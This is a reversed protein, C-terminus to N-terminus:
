ATEKAEVRKHDLAYLQLFEDVVSVDGSYFRNGLEQLNFELERLGYECSASGEGRNLTKISNKILGTASIRMGTHKPGLPIM